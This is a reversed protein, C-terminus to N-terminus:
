GRAGVARSCQGNASPTHTITSAGKTMVFILPCLDFLLRSFVCFLVEVLSQDIAKGILVELIPEVEADFDFLDNEYIQTEKSEGSPAPVFLPISPRTILSHKGCTYVRFLLVILSRDMVADTQTSADEEHPKDTLEELYNDTQIDQHKRGAVADPTSVREPSAAAFTSAKKSQSSSLSSVVEPSPVQM